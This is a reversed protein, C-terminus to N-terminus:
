ADIAFKNLWFPDDVRKGNRILFAIEDLRGIYSM